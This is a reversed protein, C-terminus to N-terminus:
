RTQIQRIEFFHLFNSNINVIRNVREQIFNIDYLTKFILAVVNPETLNKCLLFYSASPILGGAYNGINGIFNYRPAIFARYILTEM